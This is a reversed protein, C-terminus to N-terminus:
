LSPVLLQSSQVWAVVPSDIRLFGNQTEGTSHVLTGSPLDLLKEQTDIRPSPFLGIANDTADLVAYGGKWDRLSLAGGALLFTMVPLILSSLIVPLRVIQRQRWLWLSIGALSWLALAFLFTLGNDTIWMRALFRNERAVGDSVGLERQMGAMVSQARAIHSLSQGTLLSRLVEAAAPGPEKLDWHAIALNFHAEPSRIGQAEAAAVFRLLSAKANAPDGKEMATLAATWDSAAEGTLAPARARDFGVAIGLTIAVLAAAAAMLLVSKNKM